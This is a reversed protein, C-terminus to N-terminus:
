KLFNDITYSFNEDSGFSQFQGKGKETLKYSNIVNLKIICLYWICLFNEAIHKLNGFATTQCLHPQWLATNRLGDVLSASSMDKTLM